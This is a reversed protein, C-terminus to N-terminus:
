DSPSPSTSYTTSSSNRARSLGGLTNRRVPALVILRCHSLHFSSDPIDQHGYRRVMVTVLGREANVNVCEALQKQFVEFGSGGEAKTPRRSKSQWCEWRDRPVRSATVVKPSRRRSAKRVKRRAVRRRGSRSLGPMCWTRTSRMMKMPGRATLGVAPEPRSTRGSQGSVRRAVNSAARALSAATVASTARTADSASLSESRLSGEM